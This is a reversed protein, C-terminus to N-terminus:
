AEQKINQVQFVQKNQQGTGGCTKSKSHLTIM